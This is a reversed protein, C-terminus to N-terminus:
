ASLTEAQQRALATIVTRTSEKGYQSLDKIGPFDHQLKEQDLIVRTAQSLAVTYADTEFSDRGAAYRIIEAAAEEARAKELRARKNAEAEATKAANYKNILENINM